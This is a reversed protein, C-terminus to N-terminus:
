LREEREEQLNGYNTSLVMISVVLKSERWM